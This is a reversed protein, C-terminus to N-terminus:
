KHLKITGNTLSTAPFYPNSLPLALQCSLLSTACSITYAITFWVDHSRDLPVKRCAVTLRKFVLSQSLILSLYPIYPM